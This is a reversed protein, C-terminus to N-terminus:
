IHGKQPGSSPGAQPPRPGFTSTASEVLAKLEDFSRLKRNTSITPPGLKCALNYKYTALLGEIANSWRRSKRRVRNKRRM